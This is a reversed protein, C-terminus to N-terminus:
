QSVNNGGYTTNIINIVQECVVRYCCRTGDKAPKIIGRARLYGLHQSVTSQPLSYKEVMRSVCCEDKMLGLVLKLRIPHGLAKFIESDADYDVDDIM